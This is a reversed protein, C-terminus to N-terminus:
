ECGMEAPDPDRAEAWRRDFEELYLRAIRPDAIAFVNEDNSDAANDSFNMSGTVVVYEDIIVVKHHFTGPNGDQRVAAGACYLPPMESYQTESGRTEFIGQVEVGAALRERMTEGLADHTFSFAMFHISKEALGTLLMLNALPEDEPAFRVSVPRDAGIDVMQDDVTSPSRPGFEGTWMEEFERTFIAAAVPSELVTVNNNNRFVDNSTLNMSGTWLIRGDIIIFKNHMFASRLDDRIPIGAEEMLLFQGRGEEGDADIGNEDDTIWRVAVGREHARILAEAVPTLNTEFVAVDISTEAADIYDILRDILFQGNAPDGTAGSTFLVAWTGADYGMGPPLPVSSAPLTPLPAPGPPTIPPTPAGPALTPLVRPTPVTGIPAPTPRIPTITAGGGVPLPVCASLVGALLGVTLWAVAAWVAGRRARQPPRHPM